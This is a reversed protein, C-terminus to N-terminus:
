PHTSRNLQNDKLFSYIHDPMHLVRVDQNKTMELTILQNQFDVNEWKLDALEGFHLGLSTAILVMGYLNSNKNAECAQLLTNLEDRSLFRTRGKSEPLKSIRRIPNESIWEWESSALSFAKSITAFYRNVTAGSRLTKKSTHEKLLLEKAEALLSPTIHILLKKEYHENWWKLHNMQSNHQKPFNVLYLKKYQEILDHLTHKRKQAEPPLDGALIISETARVWNKAETLM